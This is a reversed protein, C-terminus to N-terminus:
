NPPLSALSLDQLVFDKFTKPIFLTIKINPCKLVRIMLKSPTKERSIRLTLIMWIIM